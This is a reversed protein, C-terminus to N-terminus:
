ILLLDPFSSVFSISTFFTSSSKLSTRLLFSLGFRRFMLVPLSSNLMPVVGGVFSSNFSHFLEPISIGNEVVNGGVFSSNFSHFLEPISIGNEVVNGGVFSSNFSHFLEPISIRNEVVNGVVNGFSM